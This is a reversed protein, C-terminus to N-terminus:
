RGSQGPLPGTCNYSCKGELAKKFEEFQDGMLQEIFDDDGISKLLDRAHELRYEWRHPDLLKRRKTVRYRSKTVKIFTMDMSDLTKVFHEQRKRSVCFDRLPVYLQEMFERLSACTLCDKECLPHPSSRPNRTKSGLRRSLYHWIVNRAYSAFPPSLLSTGLEQLHTLLRFILPIDLGMLKELTNDREAGWLIRFLTDCQDVRDTTICLKVVELIHEFKRKLDWSYAYLDDSENYECLSYMNGLICINLFDEYIQSIDEGKNNEPQNAPFTYLDEKEIMFTNVIGRFYENSCYKGDFWKLLKMGDQEAISLLADGWRDGKYFKVFSVVQKECWAEVIEQEDRRAARDKVDHIFDIKRSAECDAKDFIIKYSSQVQQFGFIDWALFLIEAKLPDWPYPTPCRKVLRKITRNWLDLDHWRLTFRAMSKWIRKDTTNYELLLDFIKKDESTANDPNLSLQLKDLGYKVGRVIIMVRDIDEKHFIVLAVRHYFHELTGPGNGKRGPNAEEDDPDGMHHPEGMILYKANFGRFSDVVRNGKLDTFYDLEWSDKTVEGEQPPVVAEGHVYHNLKRVIHREYKALWLEFGLMEAVSRIQNVKHADQEKLAAQGMDLDSKSYQHGLVLAVMRQQPLQEYGGTRWRELIERLRGLESANDATPMVESGSLSYRMLNYSLVLRYGSRIPKVEHKVDTYWSLVNIGTMCSASVDIVKSISGHSVIIEGGTYQSPLVVVMTAFMGDEKQTSFRTLPKSFVFEQHPRFHSGTEYVLLKHLKCRIDYGDPLGLGSSINAISSKLFSDWAPNQFTVLSPDIQWTDRVQKADIESLPLSIPGIDTITLFPNPADPRNESYAFSGKYGLSKDLVTALDHVLEYRSEEKNSSNDM